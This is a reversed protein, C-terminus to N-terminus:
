EIDMMQQKHITYFIRSYIRPVDRIARSSALASSRRFSNALSEVDFRLELKNTLDWTGFRFRIPRIFIVPWGFNNPPESSSYKSTVPSSNGSIIRLQM